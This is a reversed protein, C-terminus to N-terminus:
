NAINFEELVMPHLTAADRVGRQAYGIIKEAIIRTAPDDIPTLGLTECASEFARSM